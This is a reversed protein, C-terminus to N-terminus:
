SDIGGSGWYDADEDLERAYFRMAVSVALMHRRLGEDKVFECVLDWAEERTKM